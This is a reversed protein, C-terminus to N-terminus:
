YITLIQYSVVKYNVNYWEEYNKIGIKNAINKLLNKHLKQDSLYASPVNDFKWPEWDNEPYVTTLM